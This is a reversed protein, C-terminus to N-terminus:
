KKNAHAGPPADPNKEAPLLWAPDAQSINRVPSSASRAPSKERSQPAAIRRTSSPGLVRRPTGPRPPSQGVLQRWAKGPSSPWNRLRASGNFPQVPRDPRPPKNCNRQSLRHIKNGVPGTPLLNRINAREHRTYVSCCCYVSRAVAHTGRSRSCAARIIKRLTSVLAVLMAPLPERPTRRPGLVPEVYMVVLSFRQEERNM